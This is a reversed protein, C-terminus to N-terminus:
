PKPIVPGQSEIPPAAAAPGMGLGFIRGDPDIAVRFLFDEPFDSMRSTRWYQRAGNRMNWREDVVQTESGARMLVQTLGQSIGERGGLDAVLAPTMMAMLSDAQVAYFYRAARRVIELSDRPLTQQAELSSAACLLAAPVLLSRLHNRM